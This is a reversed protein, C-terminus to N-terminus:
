GSSPYGHEAVYRESRQQDRISISVEPAMVVVPSPATGGAAPYLWAACWEGGSFFRPDQRTM